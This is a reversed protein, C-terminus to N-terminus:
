IKIALEFAQHIADLANGPSQCDGVRYWIAKDPIESGDFPDVPKMGLALVM